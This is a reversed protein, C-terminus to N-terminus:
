NIKQIAFGLQWAGLNYKSSHCKWIKAGFYNLAYLAIRFDDLLGKNRLSKTCNEQIRGNHEVRQRSTAINRRSLWSWSWYPEAANAATNVTIKIYTYWICFKTVKEVELSFIRFFSEAKIWFENNLLPVCRFLVIRVINLFSVFYKLSM